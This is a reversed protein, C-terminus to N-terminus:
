ILPIHCALSQTSSSSPSTFAPPTRRRREKTCRRRIAKVCHILAVGVATEHPLSGRFSSSVGCGRVSLQASAQERSRSFPRPIWIRRIGKAADVAETELSVHALAEVLSVRRGQKHTSEQKSVQSASAHKSQDRSALWQCSPLTAASCLRDCM